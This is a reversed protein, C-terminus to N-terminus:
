RQRVEGEGECSLQTPLLSRLSVRELAADLFLELEPRHETTTVVVDSIISWGTHFNRASGGLSRKYLIPEWGPRQEQLFSLLAMGGVRRAQNIIRQVAGTKSSASLEMRLQQNRSLLYCILERMRGLQVQLADLSEASSGAFPQHISGNEM